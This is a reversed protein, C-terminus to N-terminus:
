PKIGIQKLYMNWDESSGYYHNLDVPKPIGQITGTNSYQWFMWPRQDKLDPKDKYERIWISTQKFNGTLVM